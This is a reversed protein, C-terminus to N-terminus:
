IWLKSVLVGSNSGSCGSGSFGSGLWCLVWYGSGWSGLLWLTYKNAAEFRVGLALWRHLAYTVKWKGVWHQPFADRHICKMETSEPAGVGVVRLKNGAAQQSGLGTKVSMLHCEWNQVAVASTKCPVKVRSQLSVEVGLATECNMEVHYRHRHGGVM